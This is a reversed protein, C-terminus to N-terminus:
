HSYGKKNLSIKKGNRAKKNSSLVYSVKKQFGWQSIFINHPYFYGPLASPFDENKITLNM